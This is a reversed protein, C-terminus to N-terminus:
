KKSANKGGYRKKYAKTYKSPKTKVGKDSKLPSYDPKGSRAQERRKVIEKARETRKAGKLGTLYRKIVRKGNV